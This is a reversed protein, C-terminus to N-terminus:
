LLPGQVPGGSLFFWLGATATSHGSYGDCVARGVDWCTPYQSLVDGGYDGGLVSYDEGARGCVQSKYMRCISRNPRHLLGTGPAVCVCVTGRLSLPWVCDRLDCSSMKKHKLGDESSYNPIFHVGAHFLLHIAKFVLSFIDVSGNLTLWTDVGTALTYSGAVVLVLYASLNIAMEVPSRVLLGFIRRPKSYHDNLDYLEGGEEISYHGVVPGRWGLSVPGVVDKQQILADQDSM